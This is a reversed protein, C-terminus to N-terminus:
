CVSRSMQGRWLMVVAARPAHPPQHHLLPTLLANQKPELRTQQRSPRGGVCLSLLPAAAASATARRACVGRPQKSIPPGKHATSLRGTHARTPEPRGSGAHHHAVAAPLFHTFAPKSSKRNIQQSVLIRNLYGPINHSLCSWPPPCCVPCLSRRPICALLGCFCCLLLHSDATKPAAEYRTCTGRQTV